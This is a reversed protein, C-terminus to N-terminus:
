IVIEVDSSGAKYVSPQATHMKTRRVDNVGYVNRLQCFYNGRKTASYEVTKM